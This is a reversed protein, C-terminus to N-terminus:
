GRYTGRARRRARAIHDEASLREAPDFDEWVRAYDHLLTAPSNDLQSAVYQPPQGEYVLLVSVLFRLSGVGLDAHPRAHRGFASFTLDAQCVADPWM